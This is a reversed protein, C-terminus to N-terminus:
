LFVEAKVRRLILTTMAEDESMQRVGVIFNRGIHCGKEAFNVLTPFPGVVLEVLVLVLRLHKGRICDRPCVSRKRSSSAQTTSGVRPLIRSPM